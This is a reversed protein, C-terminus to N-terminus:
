SNAAGAISRRSQCDGATDVFDLSSSTRARALTRQTVNHLIATSQVLHKTMDRSWAMSRSTVSHEDCWWQFVERNSLTDADLVMDPANDYDYVSEGLKIGCEFIYARLDHLDKRMQQINTIAGCSPCTYSPPVDVVGVRAAGRIGLPALTAKNSLRRGGFVLATEEIARGTAACFGLLLAGFRSGPRAKVTYGQPEGSIANYFKVDFLRPVMRMRIKKVRSIATTRKPKELPEHVAPPSGDPDAECAIPPCGDTHYILFGQESFELPADCHECIGFDPERDYTRSPPCGNTHYILYGDESYRVGHSEPTCQTVRQRLSQSQLSSCHAEILFM